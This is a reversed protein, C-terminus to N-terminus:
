RPEQVERVPDKLCEGCGVTSVRSVARRSTVNPFSTSRMRARIPVRVMTAKSDAAIAPASSRAPDSISSPAPKKEGAAIVSPLRMMSPIRRDGRGGLSAATTVTVFTAGRAPEGLIDGLAQEALARDVTQEDEGHLVGAAELDDDAPAGLVAEGGGVAVLEDA